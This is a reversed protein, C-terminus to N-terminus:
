APVAAAAAAIFPSALEAAPARRLEAVGPPVASVGTVSLDKRFCEERRPSDRSACTENRNLTYVSVPYKRRCCEGQM